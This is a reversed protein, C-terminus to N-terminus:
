AGAEEMMREAVEDPLDHKDVFDYALALAEEEARPDGSAAIETMQNMTDIADMDTDHVEEFYHTEATGTQGQQAFEGEFEFANRKARLIDGAHPITREGGGKPDLIVLAALAEDSADLPDFDPYRERYAEELRISQAWAVRPLPLARSNKSMWEQAEHRMWFYAYTSFKTGADPDFKPLAIWVGEWISQKLEAGMGRSYSTGTGTKELRRTLAVVYPRMMDRLVRAADEGGNQAAVAAANLEAKTHHKTYERNV